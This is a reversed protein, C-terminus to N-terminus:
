RQNAKLSYYAIFYDSRIQLYENQYDVMENFYRLREEVSIIGETLKRAAHEDNKRFLALTSEALKWAQRTSMYNAVLKRKATASQNEAQELNLQASRRELRGVAVEHRRANGSFLPLALRLGWFQQPVTNSEGFALFGDSAVQTNHQYVVSLSPAFSSRASQWKVSAQRLQINAILLQPDPAFVSTDLLERGAMSPVKLQVPGSANLLSLLDDTYLQISNRIHEIAIESRQKNIRAANLAIDSVAGEDFKELVISLVTSSSNLNQLALVEAELLLCINFYLGALRVHLERGTQMRTADSMQKNLKAAKVAFWDATNVIDFQAIVAGNYIYRRGFTAETFAGDPAMPNLLRAPVLTPQITVNDTFAGNFAIGPLLNGYAQRLRLSSIQQQIGTAALQINHSDAYDWIDELTTFVLQANASAFVSCLSIALVFRYILAKVM